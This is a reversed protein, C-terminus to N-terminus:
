EKPKANKVPQGNKKVGLERWFDRSATRKKARRLKNKDTRIAQAACEHSPRQRKANKNSAM